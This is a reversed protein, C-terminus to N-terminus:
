LEFHKRIETTKWVPPRPWLRWVSSLTSLCYCNVAWTVTDSIFNRGQFHFCGKNTLLNTNGPLFFNSCWRLKKKKKKIRQFLFTTKCYNRIDKAISASTKNLNNTVTSWISYAMAHKCAIFLRLYFLCLYSFSLFTM